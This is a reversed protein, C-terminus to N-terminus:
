YPGAPFEPLQRCLDLRVKLHASVEEATMNRYEPSPHHEEIHERMQGRLNFSYRDEGARCTEDTCEYWTCCAFREWRGIEPDEKARERRQRVLQLALNHLNVKVEPRELEKQTHDRLMDLTTYMQGPLRTDREEKWEDLSVHGIGDKVNFRFYQFEAATDQAFRSHRLVNEHTRECDTLSARATKLLRSAYNIVRALHLRKKTDSLQVPM